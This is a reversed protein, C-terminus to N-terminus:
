YCKAIGGLLRVKISDNRDLTTCLSMKSMQQEVLATISSVTAVGIAAAVLSQATPDNLIEEVHPTASAAAAAITIPSVLKQLIAALSGENKSINITKGSSEVRLVMCLSSSSSSIAPCGFRSRITATGFSEISSPMMMAMALFLYFCRCKTM